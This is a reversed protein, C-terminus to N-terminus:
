AEIGFQDHFSKAGSPTVMLARTGERRRTWGLELTRSLIAAGVAGALHPRRETWDLCGRCFPRRLRHLAALDIGFAALRHEGDVSLALTQSEQEVASLREALAVAIEGALHDYCSRARRLDRDARRAPTPSPPAPAAVLHMDELLRGVEPSALRHLRERGAPRVTVLGAVCLKKLHGSATQPTVGARQALRHANLAEGELLAVMMAARAPDGILAGIEALKAISVM